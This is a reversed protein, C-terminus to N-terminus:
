FEMHRKSREAPDEVITVNNKDDMKMFGNDFFM